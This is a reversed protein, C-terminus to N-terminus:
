AGDAFEWIFQDALDGSTLHDLAGGRHNSFQHVVGEVRTGRLDRQAQKGTAHAQDAHFVVAHADGSM